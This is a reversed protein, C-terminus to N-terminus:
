LFKTKLIEYSREFHDSKREKKEIHNEIFSIQTACYFFRHRRHFFPSDDPSRFCVKKETTKNLDIKKVHRNPGCSSRKVDMKTRNLNHGALKTPNQDKQVRIKM